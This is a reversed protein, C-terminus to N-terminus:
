RSPGYDREPGGREPGRRGPRSNRPDESAKRLREISQAFEIERQKMREYAKEGEVERVQEMREEQVWRSLTHRGVPRDPDYSVSQGNTRVAEWAREKAGEMGRCYVEGAEREIERVAGAHAKGLSVREWRQRAELEARFRGLVETRGRIAGGIERVGGGLERWARLRGLVGRCDKGMQERQREQRGYLESWERKTRKEMEGLAKGRQQQHCAWHAREEARQWAVREREWGDREAPIAERRERHPSMRERRWRGGSHGRGDVVWAGVFRRDNNFQRRWCRIKGQDWEYKGAWESLKLKSRSLGAAKGSEPDVRNVIVHVHPQGDGHAVILAQHGEMGLAKLSGEVAGMMEGRDPKEDKAWNLSYHCVPKELKRGTAAVGSLRKLEVAAEATAAMIRAAREGRDTALNRTEVWEVRESSEPALEGAERQDHLCYDAVGGFSRGGGAMSVVM